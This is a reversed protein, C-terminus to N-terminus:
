KQPGEGTQSHSHFFPFNRNLEKARSSFKHCKKISNPFKFLEYFTIITYIGSWNVKKKSEERRFTNERRLILKGGSIDLRATHFTDINKSSRGTSLIFLFKIVYKIVGHKPFALFLLLKKEYSRWIVRSFMENSITEVGGCKWVVSDNSLPQFKLLIILLM